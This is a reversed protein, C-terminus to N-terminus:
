GNIYVQMTSLRIQVSVHVKNRQANGNNGRFRFAFSPWKGSSPMSTKWTKRNYKVKFM